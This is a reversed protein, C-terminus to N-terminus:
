VKAGYSLDGADGLGPIIYYRHDLKEDVSFTWITHPIKLNKELHAIGEPAAVLAAIHLHAPVGRTILENVSDLLSNGTALMPDILIVHKDTLDPAAAYDLKISVEGSKKKRFAGIFGVDSKNFYNQFGNLYPLAARLIAILVPSSEPLDMKSTGLPTEVEGQQYSLKKSIEYAM